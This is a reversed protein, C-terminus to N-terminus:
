QCSTTNPDASRLYAQVDSLAAGDMWFGQGPGFRNLDDKFGSFPVEAHPMDLLGCVFTDVKGTTFASFNNFPEATSALHCMRCYKRFVQAYLNRSTQNTQWTAPVYTDDPVTAGSTGLQGNYVDNLFTQIAPTPNTDMVLSNLKRFAEQQEDIGFTFSDQSFYFSHVDFPLFNAGAVSHKTDDYSGGHCAMCMRPSSKLGEGDLAAEDVLVQNANGSGDDQFVYFVVKDLNAGIGTSDYVMAVTAFSKHLDGLEADNVASKLDPWNPNEDFTRVADFPAPGYNSVWCVVRRQTSTDITKLCNMDRGLQLDMQNGYVARVPTNFAVGFTQKWQDFNFVPTNSSNKAGIKQYYLDTETDAATGTMGACNRVDTCTRSYKYSLWVHTHDPTKRCGAILLGLAACALMVRYVRRRRPCDMGPRDVDSRMSTAM